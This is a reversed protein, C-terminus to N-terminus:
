VAELHKLLKKAVHMCGAHLKERRVNKALSFERMVTNGKSKSVTAIVTFKSGIVQCSYRCFVKSTKFHNDGKTLIIHKSENLKVDFGGRKLFTLTNMIVIGISKFIM